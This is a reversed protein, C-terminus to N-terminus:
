MLRDLVLDEGEKEFLKHNYYALMGRHIERPKEKQPQSSHMAVFYRVVDYSHDEIQPDREDSYLKKGNVEAILVKKQLSIQPIAHTVGNPWSPSAKVFYIGPAPSLGTVPHRWHLSPRLLENIRNRTAFENNDAPAWAIPKSKLDSTTYENAVTWFGGDKQSAKRFISPDAFSANIYFGESLKNISERHFSILQGPMYYEQFMIYVGRLCAFWGCCTPAADGHDMVRDIKAKERIEEILEPTYNLISDPTVWHLQSSSIGWLGKLFRDKWEEDKNQMEAFTESSGLSEDWGKEFYTYRERREQSDPHYMRYIWHFQTEPNCALIHYSPAIYKGTSSNKPWNPFLELLHKPIEVNSWRGLRSDMILYVAESIEEAQDIMICNIELGRLSNVDFDDLHMWYIISGNNFLTEGKQENHSSYLEKPCMGFFTQM